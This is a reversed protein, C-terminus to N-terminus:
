CITRGIHCIGFYQGKTGIIINDMGLYLNLHVKTVKSFDCLIEWLENGNLFYPAVDM